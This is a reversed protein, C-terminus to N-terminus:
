RQLVILSRYKEDLNSIEDEPNYSAPTSRDDIILIKDAKM